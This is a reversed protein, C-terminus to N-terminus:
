CGWNVMIGALVGSTSGVVIQRNCILWSSAVTTAAVDAAAAHGPPPPPPPPLACGKPTDRIITM